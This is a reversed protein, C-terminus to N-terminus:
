ITRLIHNRTVILRQHADICDTCFFEFCETCYKAASSKEEYKCKCHYNIKIIKHMRTVKFRQHAEICFECFGENCDDCYHSSVSSEKNKCNCITFDVLKIKIWKTLNKHIWRQSQWHNQVKNKGFKM